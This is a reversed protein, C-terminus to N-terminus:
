GDASAAEFVASWRAASGAEGLSALVDRRYAEADEAPLLHITIGGYGGGSLRAGQCRGDREAFAVLRDLEACSNGLLDRSSAHSEFMLGGFRKMDGLKLAREAEGVRGNEAIVHRACRLAGEGMETGAREVSEATAERLSSLGMASAASECSARLANYDGTLDHEVGSDVAVYRYGGPMAVQRTALSAFDIRLLRDREGLLVSLHDLLGTRAGAVETEAYQGIRALEVASLGAGLLGALGKLVSMCLAASSSLGVSAPVGSDVMLAFGPVEVGRARLGGVLGLVYNAWHGRSASQQDLAFVEPLAGRQSTSALRLDDGGTLAIAAACRVGVACSLTLGENYDTHNGLVELRGPASAVAGPELGYASRFREALQM